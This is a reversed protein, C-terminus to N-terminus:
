MGEVQQSTSTLVPNSDWQPNIKLPLAPQKDPWAKDRVPKGTSLTFLCLRGSALCVAVSM